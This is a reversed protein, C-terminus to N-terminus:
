LWSSQSLRDAKGIARQGLLPEMAMQCLLLLQTPAIGPGSPPATYSCLSCPLLQQKRKMQFEQTRLELNYKVSRFFITGRSM